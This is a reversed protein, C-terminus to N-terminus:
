RVPPPPVPPRGARPPWALVPKSARPPARHRNFTSRRSTAASRVASSRKQSRPLRDLRSVGLRDSQRTDDFVVKLANCTLMWKPPSFQSPLCHTRCVEWFRAIIPPSHDAVRRDGVGSQAGGLWVGLLSGALLNVIARWYPALAAFRFLGILVPLRFEAGGLGILGGLTGLAAGSGFALLPRGRAETLTGNM